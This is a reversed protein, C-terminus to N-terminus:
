IKRRKHEMSLFFVANWKPIVYSHSFLSLMKLKQSFMGKFGDKLMLSKFIKIPRGILQVINYNLFKVNESNM